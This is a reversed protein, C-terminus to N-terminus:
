TSTRRRPAPDHPVTVAPLLQVRLGGCAPCSIGSWPPTCPLGRRHWTVVDGGHGDDGHWVEYEHTWEHGCRACEFRWEEATIYM